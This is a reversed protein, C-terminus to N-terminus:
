FRSKQGCRVQTSIGDAIHPYFLPGFLHQLVVSESFIIWTLFDNARGLIQAHIFEQHTRISCSRHIPLPLAKGFDLSGIKSMALELALM